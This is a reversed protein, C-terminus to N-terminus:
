LNMDDKWLFHATAPPTIKQPVRFRLFGFKCEKVIASGVFGVHTLIFSGSSFFIMRSSESVCAGELIPWMRRSWYPIGVVLIKPLFSFSYMFSNSMSLFSSRSFASLFTVPNFSCRFFLMVSRLAFCLSCCACDLSLMILFYKPM